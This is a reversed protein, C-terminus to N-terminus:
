PINKLGQLAAGAITGDDPEEIEEPKVSSPNISMIGSSTALFPNEGGEYDAFPNGEASRRRQISPAAREDHAPINFRRALRAALAARQEPNLGDPITIYTGDPLRIREGM